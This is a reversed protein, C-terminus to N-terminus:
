ELIDERSFRSGHWYAGIRSTVQRLPVDDVLPHVWPRASDFTEPAPVQLAEELSKQFRHLDAEIAQCTSTDRAEEAQAAVLLGSRFYTSAAQHLLEGPATCARGLTTCSVASGAGLSKARWCLEICEM